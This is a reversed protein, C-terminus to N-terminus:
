PRAAAEARMTLIYRAIERAEARTLEPHPPMRWPSSGHQGRRIVEAVHNVASRDHGYASAIEVFAPGAKPYGDEHCIYCKHAAMLARPDAAVAAMPATQAALLLSANVLLALIRRRTRM